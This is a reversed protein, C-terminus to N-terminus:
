TPGTYVCTHGTNRDKLLPNPNQDLHTMSKKREAFSHSSLRKNSAGSICAKGPVRRLQSLPISEQDFSPTFVFIGDDNAPARANPHSRRSLSNLGKLRDHAAFRSM